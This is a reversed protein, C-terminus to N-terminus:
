HILHVNREFGLHNQGWFLFLLRQLAIDRMNVVCQGSISLFSKALETGIKIENQKEYYYDLKPKNKIMGLHVFQM